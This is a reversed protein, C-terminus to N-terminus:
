SLIEEMWKLQTEYQALKEYDINKANKMQHIVKILKQKEMKWKKFFVPSKEKMLIPGFLLQKEMETPNWQSQENKIKDAVIIEYIHNNEELIDEHTLSYGLELLLKRVLHAANNPQLILRNVTTLKEKGSEIIQSILSGGMGAVVLEKVGDDYNIIDLGNGLRVEVKNTLQYAEVTELARKYPGERVEGAIAHSTEDKLCIYCPLYAHDSGIDVFFTGKPLYSAVMKLRNSLKIETKM